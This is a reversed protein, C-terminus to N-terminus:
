WQTARTGSRKRRQLTRRPRIVTGNDPEPQEREVQSMEVPENDNAPKQPPIQPIKRPETPKAAPKQADKPRVMELKDALRKFSVPTAKLAAFAYVRCDLAENRARDHKTWERVPQGKVYHTVLKEATLQKFYDAGHAEDEPFHCYGPGPNALALRRMVILKAEDTGVLFLDVKRAGKGSQKRQPKEVIPRGWGGVGKIAFLRRGTKGKAYDYAAQTYGKTGGTDLCAASIPLRVGYEHPFTEELLADLEEWVDTTLPDGWLVRYDVSWSEEGMGWAVIEVELRDMQMDIGATLYLGGAPVAAVFQERRGLLSDADAREGKVEWTEAMSVNTFTQLDDTALKDLYDRVIDRLRRFTSYLENLHYSAHGKFPKAAKWGAGVEEAQRIAAVRMGDDWASGCHPCIYAATDPKQADLNATTEEHTAGRGFWQVHDFHLAQHEGCDPCAVHFRRQDGAEFAKEIYSEDKTTPTSIELLFRQDGFTAARQWLLSVPHGEDTREYGDVEDCVILPASRGRMTKPSGSWAYMMFGGPYSKMKQNNVGNRGRPKAILRRLNPNAEVLPNFKTELWTKLDTESPQMMMQSRPRVEICYGQGCLALLTKGVQAGWMLSVRYCDPDVLMDMPERQYPANALRLPGPVANGEPIRVSAEAWASPKLDPPPRLMSLANRTAREVGAANEFISVDLNM